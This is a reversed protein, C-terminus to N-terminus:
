KYELCGSYVNDSGLTQLYSLKENKNKVIDKTSENASLAELNYSLSVNVVKKDVYYSCNTLGVEKVFRECYKDRYTQFHNQLDKESAYEYSVLVSYNVLNVGSTEYYYDEKESVKIAGFHESPTVSIVEKTGTLINEENSGIANPDDEQKGCGVVLLLSFMILVFKKM